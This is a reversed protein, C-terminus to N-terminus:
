VQKAMAMKGRLVQIRAPRNQFALHGQPGGSSDREPPRSRHGHLFPAAQQNDRRNEKDLAM